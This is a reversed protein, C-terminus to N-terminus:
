KNSSWYNRQNEYDELFQQKLSLFDQKDISKQHVENKIQMKSATRSFFDRRSQKSYQEKIDLFNFIKTAHNEEDKVLKEYQITLISQSFDYKQWFEILHYYNAITCAINFMKSAYPINSIYLQKFLSVAIDWPERQINIIKAKPLALLIFGIHLFNSPLKDIFYKHDKALYKVRKYYQNAIEELPIHNDNSSYIKKLIEPMCILEGASFVDKNTSIISEVLTTGSRPMGVIFILGEGNNNKIKSFDKFKLYLEKIKKIQKQHDLPRFRQVLSSLDNAKKYCEESLSQNINESYRGLAYYMPALVKFRDANSTFQINLKSEVFEDIQKENYFNKDLSMLYYFMTPDQNVDFAKKVFDIALNKENLALLIDGYLQVLHLNNYANKIDGMLSIATEINDRADNFKRKKFLLESLNLFGYYSGPRLSIALHILEDAEFFNETVLHLYSLNNVVDFDDQKLSFLLQYKEIADDAKEQQLLCLALMLNLNYDKPNPKLAELCLIEAHHFNGKKIQNRINILQSNM